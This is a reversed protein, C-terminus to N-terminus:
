LSKSVGYVCRKPKVVVEDDSEVTLDIDSEVTLDIVEDTCVRYFCMYQILIERDSLYVSTQDAEKCVLCCHDHM